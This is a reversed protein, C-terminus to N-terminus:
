KRVNQRVHNWIGIHGRADYARDDVDSNGIKPVFEEDELGLAVVEPLVQATVDHIPGRCPYVKDKQRYHHCKEVKNNGLLDIHGVNGSGYHVQSCHEDTKEAM